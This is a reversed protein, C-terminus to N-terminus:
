RAQYVAYKFYFFQLRRCSNTQRLPLKLFLVLNIIDNSMNTKYNEYKVKTDKNEMTM